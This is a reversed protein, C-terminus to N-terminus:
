PDIFHSVPRGQGSVCNMMCRETASKSTLRHHCNTRSAAKAEKGNSSLDVATCKAFPWGSQMHSSPLFCYSCNAEQRSAGPANGKGQKSRVRFLRLCQVSDSGWSKRSVVAVLPRFVGCCDRRSGAPPAIKRGRDSSSAVHNCLLLSSVPQFM